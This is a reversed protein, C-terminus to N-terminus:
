GHVEGEDHETHQREHFEAWAREIAEFANKAAAAIKEQLAKVQASDADPKDPLTLRLRFKDWEEDPIPFPESEGNAKSDIRRYTNSAKACAMDYRSKEEEIYDAYAAYETDWEARMEDSIEGNENAEDIADIADEWRETITELAEVRLDDAEAHLDDAQRELEALAPDHPAFGTLGKYWAIVATVAGLGIAMAPHLSQMAAVFNEFTVSVAEFEKQNRVIGIFVHFYVLAGIIVASGAWASTRRMLTTKRPMLAFMDYNVNRGCLYGGCVGSLLINFFSIVFGLTAAELPTAVAGGDYFISGTALVEFFLLALLALVSHFVDPKHTITVGRLLKQGKLIRQTKESAEKKSHLASKFRAVESDIETALKTVEPEAKRVAECRNKIEGFFKYLESRRENLRECARQYLRQCIAKIGTRDMAAHIADREDEPPSGDYIDTM